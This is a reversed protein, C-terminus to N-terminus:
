ASSAVVAQGEGEGGTQATDRPPATPSGQEAQERSAPNGAPRTSPGWQTFARFKWGLYMDKNAMVEKFKQPVTVKWSKTRPNIITEKTLCHVDEVQFDAFGLKEASKLLAEKMEDKTATSHTDGIWVVVPAALHDYGELSGTGTEAKAQTRQKAKRAGRSSRAEHWEGDPGRIRKASHSREVRREPGPAQLRDAQRGARTPPPRPSYFSPQSAAVTAFSPAAPTVEIGPPATATSPQTASRALGAVMRKMEEMGARQAAELAELRASVGREDGISVAELLPAIRALDDSQILFRPTKAEDSLKRLTEVVDQAQARTATVKGLGPKRRTVSKEPQGMLVALEKQAAFMEDQRFHRELLEVQRDATERLSWHHAVSLVLSELVQDPPVPPPPLTLGATEAAPTDDPM